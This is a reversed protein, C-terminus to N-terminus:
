EIVTYYINLKPRLQENLYDSSALLLSKYPDEDQLKLLLGFSNDMDLCYDQILQTINIDTFDQTPIIAGEVLVQNTTTASPQNNWTVTSEEWDSTIRQIIFGTEGQHGDGYPSNPTFYLSIYASDIIAGEPIASIDFDLADRITNLTGSNTWSYLQLRDAAGYNTDPVISGFLADKGIVGDPQLNIVFHKVEPVNILQVTIEASDSLSNEHDDSVLIMVSLTPNIEYDFVATDLVSLMGSNSDIHFYGSDNQGAIQYHLKQHSEVDSAEVLGIIQESLPNESLTFIQPQIEPTYENVDLVSIKVKASSELPEKKHEDSVVITLVVQTISEYDLKTPDSVLLSGTSPDIECIGEDNGDVIEFSVVQGEDADDAVVTGIVTGTTSNEEISFEQDVIEPAFENKDCSYFLISVFLTLSVIRLTKM